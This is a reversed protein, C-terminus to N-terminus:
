MRLRQEVEMDSYKLFVSASLAASFEPTVERQTGTGKAPPCSPQAPSSWAM